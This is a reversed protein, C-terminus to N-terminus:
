ETIIVDRRQLPRRDGRSPNPLGSRPREDGYATCQGDLYQVGVWGCVLADLAGRVTEPRLNPSTFGRGIDPTPSRRLLNLRKIGPSDSGRRSSSEAGSPRQCRPGTAVLRPSRTPCATPLKCCLWFPQIRTSRLSRLRQKVRHRQQSHIAWPLWSPVSFTASPDLDLPAPHIRAVGGAASRGHSQTTQRVDLHSSAPPSRCTSPWSTLRRAMWCDSQATFCTPSSPFLQPRAQLGTLPLEMQLHWSSNTARRSVEVDGANIPRTCSRM